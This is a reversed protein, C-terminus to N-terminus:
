MLKLFESAQIEWSQMKNIIPKTLRHWKYKWSLELTMKKIEEFPSALRKIPIYILDSSWNKSHAQAGGLDPDHTRSKGSLAEKMEKLSVNKGSYHEGM